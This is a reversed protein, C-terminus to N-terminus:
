KKKGEKAKKGKRKKAQKAKHAKQCGTVGITTDRKIVAGNQAVFESPMVLTTSVTEKVKKTVTKQRGHVKVKVKKEITKTTTPKCLNGNAALASYSGEPLTLEFSEVPQDPVAKFTSSTIGKPSIYTDGVLDIQVGYGQLVMVLNPFAEGGNSVFYVPGELPVPLIPTHAIAHGIVSAAPCGSPNAAFQAKTCAKQLTKLRSPLQLPLEVKVQKINADNGLAGTPFTLKVSLSAGDAKSTKGSTSVAFKPEFRLARCEATQFPDTVTVPEDDAPSAFDAGSGIVTAAISTHECNTPNIMFHERDIYVRITRLHIVIGKIIHPIQDAQGSPVTVQATYPNIELPLHVVVTGLDFPGVQASTVSVLSFPAGEYPGGLYLRGPTQVLVTGVGAEAITHGIKSAAPCAPERQAQAGSQERAHQIQAESCQAVGSLNGTLGAPLQTSFGTIEQEGDRRAIQLYFPSYSGAANNVMGATVSPAFPPTGGAPCPGGDIGSDIRFTANQVRPVEPESYPYLKAETTYAGCAQPTVLPSRQGQRFSLKFHSFPLPPLNEFVSTLQGTAQNEELKGAIKVMVGTEPNKVVVYLALLSGFPNNDQEAIYVNGTLTQELLPSKVEVTGIESSPPCEESPHSSEVTEADYQEESCAVLGDALSPNETVGEPLTVVAKEVQSEAKGGEATIGEDHFDLEFNLGTPSSASESTPLSSVLPALRLEGCSNMAPMALGTPVNLYDSPELWSDVNVSSSLPGSCSTPLTLFAPPHSEPSSECPFGGTGGQAQWLCGWGRLTDHSPAGPTGWFTVTSSIFGAVESTLLSSVTIGYDEGKGSRLSADLIVPAEAPAVYFGFRAPEGYAPELNFVPLTLTTFGKLVGPENLTVSAVGVATRAECENGSDEGVEVKTLFQGLPCRPLPQPNGVLGPPLRVNINKALAVPEVDATEALPHTDASQALTLTTTLQFPHSGAQTAPSGAEEEPLMEYDNVGFAPAFGVALPRSASAARAEGGSVSMGTAEAPSATADALVDIRVELQGFPPVKGTYTCTLSVVSCPSLVRELPAGFRTVSLSIGIARLSPPLTGAIQIPDTAGEIDALGTNVATLVIQGDARGPSAVIDSANHTGGALTVSEAVLKAIPQDALGGVFTVVWRHLSSTDGAGEAVRVNGAGYLGELGSQVAAASADYPLDVSALVKEERRLFFQGSTADVSVEQAADTASGPELAAPRTEIGVTWSGSPAAAGALAPCVSALSLCFLAAMVALGARRTHSSKWSM